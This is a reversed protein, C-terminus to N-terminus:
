PRRYIYLTGKFPAHVMVVEPAPWEAGLRFEKSIVLSGPKLERWLKAGVQPALSISLYMTVADAGSCDYTFFDAKVYEVNNVGLFRRVAEAQQYPLWLSELGIVRARPLRRAIHRTLQGKGSGLDIVCMDPKGRAAADAAIRRAIVMREVFGTAMTPVRGRNFTFEYFIRGMFYTLVVLALIESPTMPRSLLWAAFAGYAALMVLVVADVPRFGKRHLKERLTLPKVPM